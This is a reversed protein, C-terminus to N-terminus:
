PCTTFRFLVDVIGNKENKSMEANEPSAGTPLIDKNDAFFENFFDFKFIDGPQIRWKLARETQPDLGLVEVKGVRFQRGEDLELILSIMGTRDDVETLPTAVFNIYGHVLYLRKLADIGKRIQGTRFLEGDTLPVRKRLEESSFALEASGFRGAEAYPLVKKRLSPKHIEATEEASSISHHNQVSWDDPPKQFRIERLRYQIGEDVHITV